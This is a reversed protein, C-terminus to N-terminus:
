IGSRDSQEHIDGPQANICPRSDRSLGFDELWAQFMLVGWL